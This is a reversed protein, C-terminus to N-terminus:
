GVAIGRHYDVCIVFFYGLVLCILVWGICMFSDRCAGSPYAGASAMDPVSAICMGSLSTSLADASDLVEEHHSLAATMFVDLVLVLCVADLAAYSIQSPSLPRSGWSSCQM